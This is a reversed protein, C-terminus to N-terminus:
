PRIASIMFLIALILGFAYSFLAFIMFHRTDVHLKTNYEEETYLIDELYFVKIGNAYQVAPGDVRHLENKDNYWRITGEKDLVRYTRM